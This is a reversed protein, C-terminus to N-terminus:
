YPQSDLVKVTYEKMDPPLDHFLLTFPISEGPPVSENLDSKGNKNNLVLNLEDESLLRIEEEALPNGAYVITKKLPPDKPASHLMGEIRIFRVTHTYDNRVLGHVVFVKGLTASESFQGEVNILALHKNGPDTEQPQAPPKAPEGPTRTFWFGLGAGVVIVLLVGVVLIRKAQLSSILPKRVTPLAVQGPPVTKAKPISPLPKGEETIEFVYKCKSCRVKATDGTVRAPDLNFKTSCEPCTVIM